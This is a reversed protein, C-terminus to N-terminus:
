QGTHAAAAAKKDSIFRLGDIQLVLITPALEELSPAAIHEESIGRKFAYAGRGSHHLPSAGSGSAGSPEAALPRTDDDEM